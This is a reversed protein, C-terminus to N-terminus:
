KNVSKAKVAPVDRVDIKGTVAATVLATRYEHLREIAEEVKLCLRDIRGTREDLFAAIARQEEVPPLLIILYKLESSYIHMVTVGRGMCAKQYTAIHCDTAYGLFTADVEICPRLVIVDGGCYAPGDILNVASKGIDEITEGSGAFLVDAYRLERYSVVVEARIDARTDKVFCQHYTYLDGYRVCPLGAEIEDEKTGGAGKFFVGIRGLQRVDWHAPVDGLWDVGSPKLPPSPDFGAALAVEPPLGRTVAGTILAKRYEALRELLLRKKAVLTDIKETEGDLYEVIARQEEVPPVACPLNVVAYTPLGMLTVGVGCGRFYWRTGASQIMWFVFGSYTPDNPRVIGLHYGCVFDDSVEEILAPVGIEADKTILVDGVALKFRSLELPSATAIMFDGEDIRIRDRDHVDTYNCLRVRIEGDSAKKDVSSTRYSAVHKLLRLKWHEPVEGLVDVGSNRYSPYANMM